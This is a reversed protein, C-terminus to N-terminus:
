PKINRELTKPLTFTYHVGEDVDSEFLLQGSLKQKMLNFVLNLGLGSGGKGRKTTYFPEFIKHHLAPEVGCGNDQYELIINDQQQYFRITIEPNPQQAFAHNISNMVLNSVIQTLVGPLSNMTITEDGEIKPVVPVKRTEPHLSAILAHLVQHISFQSRSESVQDVATQKFDRVLKAARNLNSELMQTTDNMRLMLSSFQSSTLTQDAFAKNLENKIDNIVSTATVAIGLPTNVEHAVGAVLGGLAALKESEILQSQTEQLQQMSQKLDSTRQQLDLTRRAVQRELNQNLEELETQALKLETINIATGRFGIFQENRYRAIAQFMLYQTVGSIVINEKCKSFDEKKELLHLLHELDKFQTLESLFPKENAAINLAHRMPESAYILQNSANTEWLWDSSVETFDALREQEFKINNYLTTLNTTIKNTEDALWVLEDHHGMIWKKHVLQLPKPPHRPNYKRLYNAIAFLRRNVSEHFIMLIVYCVFVTKMANVVLVILFQRILYTYIEQANSEIYITGVQEKIGTDPNLYLMPYSNKLVRETVKNGASFHYNGSSILLYDIKPLNVLGDLRQQLTVLDYSWLATALLDAHVFEIEHHRQAVDNFERNYDFYTQALTTMLTVLGSLIVLFIIIRRGIHSSIPSSDSEEFQRSRNM